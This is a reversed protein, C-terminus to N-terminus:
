ERKYVVEGNVVTFLIEINEDFVTIDADYGPALRGKKKLGMAKAPTESAMRVADALPIGVGVLTRILRDYTAISGAFATFDPIWAVGDKIIAEYGNEKSGMTFATAGELGAGRISDTVPIMRKVGKVKYILKM